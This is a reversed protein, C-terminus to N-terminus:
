RLSVADSLLGYTDPDSADGFGQTSPTTPLEADSADGWRFQLDPTTTPAIMNLRVGGAKTQSLMLFLLAPDHETVELFEILFAAPPYELDLKPTGSAIIALVELIDISKGRSRNIRVRARIFLRFVEDERGNRAEGVIKGLVDLQADVADDLLRSILVAWAADSLAQVEKLFSRVWAEIRPRGKFQDILNSLGREVHDTVAVIPM